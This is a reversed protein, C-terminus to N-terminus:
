SQATTSCTSRSSGTGSRFDVDCWTLTKGKSLVRELGDVVVLFNDVAGRHSLETSVGLLVTSTAGKHCM